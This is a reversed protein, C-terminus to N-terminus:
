IKLTQMHFRAEIWKVSVTPTNRAPLVEASRGFQVTAGALISSGTVERGARNGSSVAEMYVHIYRMNYQCIIYIM